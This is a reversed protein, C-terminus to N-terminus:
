PAELEVRDLWENTLARFLTQQEARVGHGARDLVALTARPYSEILDISDLYGVNADQRGVLILAPRDFPEPLRRVDVSLGPGADIRDVFAHDAIRLGPLVGQRFAALTEATQVVSVKTWFREDDSLGAVVEPDSFLIRREPVRRKPDEWEVLPAVLALGDITSARRHVLGLALLGGYSSGVLVFRAGELLSGVAADVIDLVDDISTIWDAAPTAGMGPLDLYLRRWGPRTEFIPEYAVTMLRHDTPKGHLLVIPRGQGREEVHVPLGRIIVEM